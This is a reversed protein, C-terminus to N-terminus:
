VDEQTPSLYHKIASVHYPGFKRRGDLSSVGYTSTGYIRDIKFPGEYVEFLKATEGVVAHSLPHTKVLVLDNLNFSTPRIKLNTKCARKKQKDRIRQKALFLKRELPLDSTFPNSVYNEWFRVSKFGLHLENPTFGTTEHHIENLFTNIVPIYRAWNRHQHACYTRLCRKVEKIPREAMNYSPYYVPSFIPIINNEKLKKLWAKSKFQSGNDSQIKKPAGYNIFHHGFLKNIITRTNATRMPYLKVFKTFIDLTILLYKVNGISTPLPGIIDIALHDNKQNCTIGKALGQPPHQNTKCRQCSDCTALTTRIKRGMNKFIFCEQLISFCKKAGCHLYFHHCEWILRNIISEPVAILWNNRHKKYLIGKDLKYKESTQQYLPADPDLKLNAYPIRLLPDDSQLEPLNSLASRLHPDSIRRIYNITLEQPPHHTSSTDPHVIRSLADATSNEAGKCHEIEFNYEQIALIWRTLRNNLLRCTKLFTIAHNDTLIKLRTGLILYRTKQLCYVIALLEKETTTYRLEASQLARSIFVIATKDGNEKLQFLHGGIAYDSADTQLYFTKNIDPHHLINTHLFLRKINNFAAEDKSTWIFKTKKSTLRLLPQVAEAYHDIFKNYYNICGLFSKLQKRNTPSPFDLIPKIKSSDMCLGSETLTYGLFPISNQCFTSKSFKVTMGAETLKKLIYDIHTLHDIFSPSIICIDDVYILTFNEVEDNFVKDLARVLAAQSTSIGFPTVKYHYTKGRFQFATYQRSKADLPIQWYSATLDISTLWKSNCAKALLENVSRNCEYDPTILQNIKRADLCLRIEGSKKVVPIIPNIFTSNSREIIGLQEMRQLEQLVADQHALPVPYSQCKFAEPEKVELNHQYKSCLGPTDSFTDQYKLLLDTLQTRQENDLLENQNLTEEITDANIRDQPNTTSSPTTGNHTEFDDYIHTIELNQDYASMEDYEVDDDNMLYCLIGDHNCGDFELLLETNNINLNLIKRNFNIEMKWLRITDMGFIVNHVLSPVMLLQLNTEVGNVNVTLMLIKSVRKSKVGVATKIHIGTLPLEEYRGLRNKNEIVWQESICSINAGTDILASTPVNNILINIEPCKINNAIEATKSTEPDENLLFDRDCFINSLNLM